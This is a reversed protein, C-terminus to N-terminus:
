GKKNEARPVEENSQYLIGELVPGRAETEAKFGPIKRGGWMMTEDLRFHRTSSKTAAQRASTRRCTFV